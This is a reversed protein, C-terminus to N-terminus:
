IRFFYHFKLIQVGQLITPRLQILSSRPSQLKVGKRAPKRVTHFVMTREQPPLTNMYYTGLVITGQHTEYIIPGLNESGYSGLEM